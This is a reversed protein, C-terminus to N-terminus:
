NIENSTVGLEDLKRMFSFTDEPTGAKRDLVRLLYRVKNADLMSLRGSFSTICFDKLFKYEEKCEALSFDVEVSASNVIDLFETPFYDYSGKGTSVISLKYKCKRLHVDDGYELADLYDSGFLKFLKDSMDKRIGRVNTESLGTGQSVKRDEIGWYRLVLDANKRKIFSGQKIYKKTEVVMSVQRGNGSERAKKEIEDLRTFFGKSM